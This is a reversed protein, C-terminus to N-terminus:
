ESICGQENKQCRQCIDGNKMDKDSINDRIGGEGNNQKM